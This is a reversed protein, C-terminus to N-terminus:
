RAAGPRAGRKLSIRCLSKSSARGCQPKESPVLISGRVKRASFLEADVITDVVCLAKPSKRAEASFQREAARVEERLELLQQYFEHLSKGGSAATRESKLKDRQNKM